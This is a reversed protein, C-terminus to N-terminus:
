QLIENIDDHQKTDIDGETIHSFKACFQELEARLIILAQKTGQSQTKSKKDELIIRIVYEYETLYVIYKQLSPDSTASYLFYILEMIDLIKESLEKKNLEYKKNSQDLIRRYNKIDDDSFKPLKINKVRDKIEECKKNNYGTTYAKEKYLEFYRKTDPRM